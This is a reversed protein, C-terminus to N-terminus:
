CTAIPRGTPEPIAGQLVAVNGEAPDGFLVLFSEGNGIVHRLGQAAGVETWTWACPSGSPQQLYVHTRGGNDWTGKSAHEGGVHLASATASMDVAKLARQIDICGDSEMHLQTPGLEASGAESGSQHMHIDIGQDPAIGLQYYARGQLDKPEALDIIALNGAEDPKAVSFTVHRHGTCDAETAEPDGSAEGPPTTRLALALLGVLLSSATRM